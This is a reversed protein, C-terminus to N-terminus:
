HITQIEFKRGNFMGIEGEKLGHLAQILPSSPSATFYTTGKHETKGASIAVYFNGESTIILSGLKVWKCKQEPDISTMTCMLKNAKELHKANNEAELQMMARITDHKDGATSKTEANASAQASEVATKANEIRQNVYDLCYHYLVKKIQDTM